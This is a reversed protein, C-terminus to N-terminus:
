SPEFVNARRGLVSFDLLVYAQMPVLIITPMSAQITVLIITPMASTHSVVALIIQVLIPGSYQYYNMVWPNEPPSAERFPYIHVIYRVGIPTRSYPGIWVEKLRTGRPGVLFDRIESRCASLWLLM